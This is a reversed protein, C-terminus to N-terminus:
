SARRSVPQRPTSGAAVEIVMAGHFLGEGFDFHDLEPMAPIMPFDGDKRVISRSPLSVGLFAVGAEDPHEALTAELTM